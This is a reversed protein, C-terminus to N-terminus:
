SAANAEAEKAKEAEKKAKWDNYHGIGATLASSAFMIWAQTKGEVLGSTGLQALLMGVYGIHKTRNEWVYTFFTNMDM